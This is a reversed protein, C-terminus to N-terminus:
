TTGLDGRPNRPEQSDARYPGRSKPGSVHEPRGDLLGALRPPCHLMQTDIRRWRGASWGHPLDPWANNGNGSRNAVEKLEPTSVEAIRKLAPLRARQTSFVGTSPM